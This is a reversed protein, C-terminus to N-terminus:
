LRGGSYSCPKAAVTVGVPFAALAAALQTLFLAHFHDVSFSFVLFCHAQGPAEGLGGLQM